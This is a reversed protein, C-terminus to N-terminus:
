MEDNEDRHVLTMDIVDEQNHFIRMKKHPKIFYEDNEWRTAM